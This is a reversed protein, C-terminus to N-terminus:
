WRDELGPGKPPEPEKPKHRVPIVFGAVRDKIAKVSKPNLEIGISRRNMRQAVVSTTGAGSYPDLVLAPIAPADHDCTPKWGTSRYAACPVIVARGLEERYLGTPSEFDKAGHNAHRGITERCGYCLGNEDFGSVRELIREWPAGCTSCVGRESTAAKIVTEPLEDPFVAFHDGHFNTTAFSWVSRKNRYGKTVVNEASRTLIDMPSEAVSRADTKHRAPDYTEKTTVARKYRAMSMASLPESVGYLDYYYDETKSFMFIYEHNRTPRDKASEPKSRTKEWIVDCRLIWGDAILALAVRAPMLLLSKSSSGAAKWQKTSQNADSKAYDNFGDSRAFKDGINYWFTGDDRLVRRIARAMMVQQNVYGAITEERGHELPEDSYERQQYYPPSTVVCHVSKEPLRSLVEICDGQLILPKVDQPLTIPEAM